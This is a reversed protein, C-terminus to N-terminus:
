RRSAARAVVALAGLLPYLAASAAAVARWDRRELATLFAGLHPRLREAAQDAEIGKDGTAGAMGGRTVRPPSM